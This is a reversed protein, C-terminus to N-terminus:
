RFPCSSSVWQGSASSSPIWPDRLSSSLPPMSTARPWKQWQSPTPISSPQVKIGLREFIIPGSYAAATGHTNFNVPKGALDELARSRRASSCTCKPPFLHTIYHIRREIRSIRPDKKFHELVDGYIIAADMGRVYLLDNVNEFPGRTVIPLVRMKEGDDVVRALETAFRLPAGELRGAALGITSANLKALIAAEYPSRKPITAAGSAETGSSRFRSFCSQQLVGSIQM